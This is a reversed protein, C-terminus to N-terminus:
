SIVAMLLALGGGVFIAMAYESAVREAMRYVGADDLVMFKEPESPNYRIEYYLGEQYTDARDSFIVSKQRYKQGEVEYSFVPWYFRTSRDVREEEVEVVQAVSISGYASRASLIEKKLASCYVFISGGRLVLFGMVLLAIIGM